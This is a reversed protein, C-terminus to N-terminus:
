LSKATKVESSNLMSSVFLLLKWTEVVDAVVLSDLARRDQTSTDLLDVGCGFCHM